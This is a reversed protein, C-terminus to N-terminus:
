LFGSLGKAGTLLASIFLVTIAAVRYHGDGLRHFLHEGLWTGTLMAPYGIAASLLLHWGMVDSGIALSFLAIVAAFAFFLLLSARSEVKGIGSGLFYAVAPPGPMAALGSLLGATAGAALVPGRGGRIKVKSLLAILGLLVVIAIALRMADPPLRTAFYAGIPTVVLAGACLLTLAERDVNRHNHYIDTPAAAVQLIQALFVAQLPDIRLSFLPVAALAFGFGTLGRLIGAALTAVFLVMIENM